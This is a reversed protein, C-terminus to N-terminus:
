YPGYPSFGEQSEGHYRPLLGDLERQAPRHGADAARNFLLMAEWTQGYQMRHLGSRYAAEQVGNDAAREFFVAAAHPYGNAEYDMGVEFAADGRKWYHPPWPDTHPDWEVALRRALRHGVRAARQLWYLAEHPRNDCALLTALRYAPVGRDQGDDAEAHRLLRMGTRGYADAYRRMMTTHGAPPTLSPPEPEEDPPEPVADYAADYAAPRAEALPVLVPVPAALPPRQADLIASRAALYRAHWDRTSGIEEPDLGNEWAAIRLVHLFSSVWPWPPLRGRKGALIDHTTSHPLVRVRQGGPAGTERPGGPAGADRPGGSERPRATPGPERCRESLTELRAFTPPGAREFAARLDGIFTHLAAGARTDDPM